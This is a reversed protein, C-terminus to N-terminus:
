SDRKCSEGLIRLDELALLIDDRESTARPSLEWLRNLCAARAATVNFQRVSKNGEGFAQTFLYRWSRNLQPPLAM